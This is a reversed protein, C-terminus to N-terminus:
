QLITILPLISNKLFCSLIYTPCRRRSVRYDKKCLPRFVLTVMMAAPRLVTRGYVSLMALTV